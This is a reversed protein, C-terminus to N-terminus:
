PAPTAGTRGRASRLRRRLEVDSMTALTREATKKSNWRVDALEVGSDKESGEPKMVLFYRGKYDTGPREGVTAVWTPGNQDEFSRM